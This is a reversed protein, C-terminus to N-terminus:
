ESEVSETPKLSSKTRMKEKKRKREKEKKEKKSKKRRELLLRTRREFFLCAVACRLSGFGGWGLGGWIWGVQPFSRIRINGGGRGAMAAARLEAQTSVGSVGRWLVQPRAQALPVAFGAVGICFVSAMLPINLAGTLLVCVHGAYRIMVYDCFVGVAGHRALCAARAGGARTARWVQVTSAGHQSHAAAAAAAAVCM